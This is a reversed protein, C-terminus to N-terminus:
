IKSLRSIFIRRDLQMVERPAFLKKMKLLIKHDKGTQLKIFLVQAFGGKAIELLKLWRNKQLVDLFAFVSRPIQIKKVGEVLLSEPQDTELDFVFCNVLSYFKQLTKPVSQLFDKSFLFLIPPNADFENLKLLLLPYIFHRSDAIIFVSKINWINSSILKHSYGYLWFLYNSFGKVWHYNSEENSSDSNKQNRHKFFLRLHFWLFYPLTLFVRLFFM